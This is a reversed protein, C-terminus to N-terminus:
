AIRQKQGGSMQAGREGVQTEYGDPFNMIFSHANAMKAAAIVDDRTVDKLSGFAINNAITDQFLIPEQSVIGIQSRLWKINLTRIDRGDLTVRGSEPDYFRQLLQICTSKGCGSPGVLAVTTGKKINVSLGTLVTVDQRAPYRFRVGEFSIDGEVNELKDGTDSASNIIPEEDITNYIAVAAGRANSSARIGPSASGIAFSATIISFFSTLMAGTTITGDWILVSGYWFALGFAGFMLFYASGFGVGFVFGKKVGVKRAGELEHIYRDAEKTEGGFAVVTRISSLVEEAVAGAKAYADQEKTGFSIVLKSVFASSAGLLPTTALVVLSLRWSYVFGIVFGAISCAIWQCFVSNKDGIGDYVKLIDDSLRSALEGTKHTDFWGIDKHLIATFFKRRIRRIISEGVSYWCFVQLYSVFWVGGAMGAYIIAQDKLEDQLKDFLADGTGNTVNTTVNTVNTTVNTVNTTVNTVNTTVNTVNTTANTVNTLNGGGGPGLTTADVLSQVSNGFVIMVAAVATGHAAAMIIGVFMLVVELPTAYKFLRLLSVKEKSEEDEDTENTETLRYKGNSGIQKKAGLAEDSDSRDKTAPSKRSETTEVGALESELRKGSDSATDVDVTSRLHASPPDGGAVAQVEVDM